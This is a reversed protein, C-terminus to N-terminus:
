KETLSEACYFVKEVRATTIGNCWSRKQDTYIPVDSQKVTWFRPSGLAQFLGTKRSLSM